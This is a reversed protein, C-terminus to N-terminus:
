CLARSPQIELFLGSSTPASSVHVSPKRVKYSLCPHSLTVAKHLRKVLLCVSSNDGEHGPIWCGTESFAPCVRPPFQLM